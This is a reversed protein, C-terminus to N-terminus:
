EWGAGFLSLFEARHLRPIDWRPIPTTAIVYRGGDRGGVMCPYGTTQTIVGNRVKDEYLSVWLRSYDAEAHMRALERMDREVIDQFYGRLLKYREDRQDQVIRIVRRMPVGVLAYDLGELDPEDDKMPRYPADLFTSVGSFPWLRRSGRFIQKGVEAFDSDFITGEPASGYKERLARLKDQDM